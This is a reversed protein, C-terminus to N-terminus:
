FFRGFFFGTCSISPQFLYGFTCLSFRSQRYNATTMPFRRLSGILGIRKNREVVTNKYGVFLSAIRRYGDCTVLVTREDSLLVSSVNQCSFRSVKGYMRVPGHQHVAPFQLPLTDCEKATKVLCRRIRSFTVRIIVRCVLTCVDVLVALPHQHYAVTLVTTVILKDICTVVTDSYYRVLRVALLLVIIHRFSPCVIEQAYALGELHFPSALSYFPVTYPTFPRVRCDNM